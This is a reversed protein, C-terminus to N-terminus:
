APPLDDAPSGGFSDAFPFILSVYFVTAFLMLAVPAAVAGWMPLVGLLRMLLTSLAVYLLALAFWVLFYVVFAGKARWVALTSSFLSQGLGQGGWHVLGPAHWYPVSLLPGLVALVLAGATVDPDAQLAALDEARGPGGYMAEVMATLKGGAVLDALVILLVVAIGYSACLAIQTRVQAAPQQFPELFQGPHVPGGKLASLAAIMFVLQGLPLLAFTLVGGIVPVLSILLVFFLLGAYLGSFALPKRGFLRFAERVWLAGRGPPPTKLSLAM